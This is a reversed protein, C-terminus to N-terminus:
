AESEALREKRARQMARSVMKKVADVSKGLHASLEAYSIGELRASLVAQREEPSLGELVRVVSERDSVVDDSAAHGSAPDRDGLPIEHSRFARRRDDVLLRNAIQFFWPAFPRNRDFRDRARHIRLFLEQYLDQARQPSGTRGLFFAYARREFRRFLEDFAEADGDAYRAMLTEDAIGDRREHDRNESRM